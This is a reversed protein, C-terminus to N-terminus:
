NPLTFTAMKGDSFKRQVLKDQYYINVASPNGLKLNFPPTGSLDLEKGNQYLGFALRKGKADTIVAWCEDEFILKLTHTESSIKVKDVNAVVAPKEAVTKEVVPKVEVVPEPIVVVPETKVVLQKKTEVQAPIDQAAKVEPVAVYEEAVPDEIIIETESEPYFQEDVQETNTPLQMVANETVVQELSLQSQTQTEPEMRGLFALVVIVVTFLILSGWVIKKSVKKKDNFIYTNQLSKVSESPHSLKQFEPYSELDPFKLEKSYNILYGRLYIMPYIGDAIVKELNNELNSIISAKLNLRLSIEEVTLKAALRCDKLAQDLPIPQQENHMDLETM